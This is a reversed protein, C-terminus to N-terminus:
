VYRQNGEWYGFVKDLPQVVNQWKVGRGGDTGLGLGSAPAGGLM